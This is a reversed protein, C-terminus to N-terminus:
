FIRRVKKLLSISINEIFLINYFWDLLMSMNPYNALVIGFTSINTEDRAITKALSRPASRRPPTHRSRRSSLIEM